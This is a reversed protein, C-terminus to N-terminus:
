RWELLSGARHLLFLLRHICFAVDQVEQRPQGRFWLVGASLSHHVPVHLPLVYRTRGQGLLEMWSVEPVHIQDPILSSIKSTALVLSSGQAESTIDVTQTRLNLYLSIPLAVFVVLLSWGQLPRQFLLKDVLKFINKFTLWKNGSDELDLESARRAVYKLNRRSTM